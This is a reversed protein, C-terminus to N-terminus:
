RHHLRVTNEGEHVITPSEDEPLNIIAIPDRYDRTKRNYTAQMWTTKNIYLHMQDKSQYTSWAM